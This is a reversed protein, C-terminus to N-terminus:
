TTVSPEDEFCLDVVWCLLEGVCDCTRDEECVKPVPECTAQFTPGFSRKVCVQTARDCFMEGCETLVPPGDPPAADPPAADFATAAGDPGGAAADVGDGAGAADAETDGNIKGCGVALLLVAVAGWRTM